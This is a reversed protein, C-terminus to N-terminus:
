NELLHTIERGLPMSLLNVRVKQEYFPLTAKSSGLIDGVSVQAFLEPPSQYPEVQTLWETM